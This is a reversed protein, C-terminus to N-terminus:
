NPLGMFSQELTKYGLKGTSFARGTKMNFFNIKCPADWDRPVDAWSRGCREFLEQFPTGYIDTNKNTGLMQELAERSKISSTFDVYGCFGCTVM